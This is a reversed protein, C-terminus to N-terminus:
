DPVVGILVAEGGFEAERADGTVRIGHRTNLKGASVPEGRPTDLVALDVVAALEVNGIVEVLLDAQDLAFVLELHAPIDPTQLRGGSRAAKVESARVTLVKKGTRLRRQRCVEGSGPMREGAQQQAQRVARVSGRRGDDDAVDAVAVMGAIKLIGPLDTRAQGQGEPEAVLNRNVPM